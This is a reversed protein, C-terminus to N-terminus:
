ARALWSPRDSLGTLWDGYLRRATYGPAGQPSPLARWEGNLRDVREVVSNRDLLNRCHTVRNWAWDLAHQALFSSKAAAPAPMGEELKMVDNWPGILRVITGFVHHREARCAM